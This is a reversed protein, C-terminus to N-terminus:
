SFSTTQETIINRLHFWRCVSINSSSNMVTYVDQVPLNAKDYGHRSRCHVRFLRTEYSCLCGSNSDACSESSKENVNLMDPAGQPWCCPWQMVQLAGTSLQWQVTCCRQSRPAAFLSAASTAGLRLASIGNKKVQLLQNEKGSWLLVKQFDWSPRPKQAVQDLPLHGQNHCLPQSQITQLTGELGSWETITTMCEKMLFFFFFFKFMTLCTLM